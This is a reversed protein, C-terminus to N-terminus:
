RAHDKALAMFWLYPEQFNVMGPLFPTPVRAASNIVTATIVKKWWTFCDAHPATALIMIWPLYVAGNTLVYGLPIGFAVRSKNLTGAMPQVAGGTKLGGASRNQGGGKGASKGSASM